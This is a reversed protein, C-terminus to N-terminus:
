RHKRTKGGLSAAPPARIRRTNDFRKDENTEIPVYSASKNKVTKNYVPPIIYSRGTFEAFAKRIANYKTNCKSKSIQEPTLSTGPHLEMDITIAYAIKSSDREEPKKTIYGQRPYGYQRYYPPYRYGNQGGIMNEPPQEDENYEDLENTNDNSGKILPIFKLNKKDLSLRRDLSVKNPFFRDFFNIFEKKYKDDLIQLCAEEISRMIPLYISFNNRSIPNLTSYISGYILMLIHMPPALGDSKFISYWKGSYITEKRLGEGTIKVSPKVLYKFRILEYHNNKYMLFMVKKSCKDRVLDNDTLLAKLTDVRKIRVNFTQIEYYKEIPIVCIKLKDCIAEIAVDNAWYDRSEIYNPIELQKVVRFPNNYEYIDIPVIKPKYIMFNSNSNYVNTLEDLYQQQTIEPVNLSLKLKQITDQFKTNLPEVQEEAVSLMTDVVNEGLDIIYQVVLERLIRATFLTTKGYNAYIIKSDQNEYNYINIGDAVARFFCDGNAPSKLITVQECLKDYSTNSLANTKQIPQYNTTIFYFKRIESKLQFPFKDFVMKVINRYGTNQFYKVFFKTANINPQLENKFTDFLKEEEPSLEEIDLQPTPPLLAPASAPPLLAPKTAPPLLAPASAPPLLAPAPTRTPGPTRTPVPTRAPAPSRALAPPSTATFTSVMSTSTTASSPESTPRTIGRAIPPGAYNVGTLIAQPLQNLQEEGSIIEESVLQTYLQPDTIKSPDIEEKKQKIEIKWDGTTWQIDGIAYPNKGIYIVSGVPFITDLTVRINNDVYGYRTAQTLNKAPTGGNYNLLSQFLGKNFFEKIRYEEPIKNVTSKNLKILPNFRVGKEDSNKITMSPKYEIKQYGPISTRIIINLQDPYVIKDEKKVETSM